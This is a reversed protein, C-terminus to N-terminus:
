QNYIASGFPNSGEVEAKPPFPAPRATRGESWWRPYGVTRRANQADGVPYSGPDCLLYGHRYAFRYRASWRPGGSEYTADVAPQADLDDSFRAM